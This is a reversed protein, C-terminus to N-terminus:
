HRYAQRHVLARARKELARELQRKNREAQNKMGSCPVGPLAGGCVLDRGAARSEDYLREVELETWDLPLPLGLRGKFDELPDLPECVAVYDCTADTSTAASSEGTGSARLAISTHWYYLFMSYQRERHQIQQATGYRFYKSCTGLVLKPQDLWAELDSEDDLSSELLVFHRVNAFASRLFEQSCPSRGVILVDLRALEHVLSELSHDTIDFAEVLRVGPQMSEATM